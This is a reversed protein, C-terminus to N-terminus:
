GPPRSPLIVDMGDHPPGVRENVVCGRVTSVPSFRHLAIQSPHAWLSHCCRYLVYISYSAGNLILRLDPALDSTRPIRMARNVEALRLM